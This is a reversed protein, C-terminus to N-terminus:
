RSGLVVVVTKTIYYGGTVKVHISPPTSDQIL